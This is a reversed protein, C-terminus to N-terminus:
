TATTYPSYITSYLPILIAIGIDVIGIDEGIDVKKKM